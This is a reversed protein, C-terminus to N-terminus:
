EPRFRSRVSVREDAPEYGHESLRDADRSGLLLVVLLEFAHVAPREGALRLLTDDDTSEVSIRADVVVSDDRRITLRHGGAASRDVGVAYRYSGIGLPGGKEFRLADDGDSSSDDIRDASALWLSTLPNRPSAFEELVAAESRGTRLTSETRLTFIPAHLLLHGAFLAAGGRLVGITRGAVLMAVFLAGFYGYVILQHRRLARAAAESDDVRGAAM